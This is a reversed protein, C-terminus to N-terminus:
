LWWFVAGSGEFAMVPVSQNLYSGARVEVAASVKKSLIFHFGVVGHAGLYLPLDSDQTPLVMNNLTLKMSTARAAEMGFGMYLPRFFSFPTWARQLGLDIMKYRLDVSKSPAGTIDTRASGTFAVSRLGLWIRWFDHRGIQLLLFPSTQKSSYTSTTYTVQDETQFSKGNQTLQTYVMGPGFGYGEDPIPLPELRSALQSTLVYGQMVRGNRKVHIKSFDGEVGIVLVKERRALFFMKTADELPNSYVPTSAPVYMITSDAWAAAWTLCLTLILHM